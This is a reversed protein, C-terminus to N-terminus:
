EFLWPPVATTLPVVSTAGTTSFFTAPGPLTIDAVFSSSDSVTVSSSSSASEAGEFGRRAERTEDRAEDVAREEESEGEGAVRRCRVREGVEEEVREPEGAKKTPAAAFDEGERRLARLGVRPVEGREDESEGPGGDSRATTGFHSLVFFPLSAEGAGDFSPRPPPASSASVVSSSNSSASASDAVGGGVLRAEVRAPMAATAAAIGGMGESADIAAAGREDGAETRLPPSDGCSDGVGAGFYMEARGGFSATVVEGGRSTRLFGSEGRPDENGEGGAEGRECCGFGEGAVAEGAVLGGTQGGEGTEGEGEGEGQTLASRRRLRRTWCDRLFLVCLM